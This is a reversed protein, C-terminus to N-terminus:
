QKAGKSRQYEDKNQELTQAERSQETATGGGMEWETRREM